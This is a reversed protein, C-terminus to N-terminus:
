TTSGPSRSARPCLCGAGSPRGPARSRSRSSTSTARGASASAAKRPAAPKKARERTALMAASLADLMAIFDDEGDSGQRERHYRASRAVVERVFPQAALPVESGPRLAEAATAALDRGDRDGARDFLYAAEALRAAWRARAAGDFLVPLWPGLDHPGGAAAAEFFPAHAPAEEPDFYWSELGPADALAGTRGLLEPRAWTTAEPRSAGGLGEPQLGRFLRYQFPFPLGLRESVATADALRTGVHEADVPVVTTGEGLTSLLEREEAETMRPQGAADALGRWENVVASALALDGDPRRRVVYLGQSGAGDPFSAFARVIPWAPPLEAPIRGRAPAGALAAALWAAADGPRTRLWTVLAKTSERDPGALALIAALRLKHDDPAKGALLARVLASRVMIPMTLVDAALGYLSQEDKGVRALGALLPAVIQPPVDPIALGGDLGAADALTLSSVPELPSGPAAASWALAGVFAEKGCLLIGLTALNIPTEGPDLERADFGGIAVVLARALTQRDTEGAHRAMAARLASSAFDDAAAIALTEAVHAVAVGTPMGAPGVKRAGPGRKPM